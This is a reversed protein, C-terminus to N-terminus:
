AAVAGDLLPALERAATRLAAVDHEARAMLVAGELTSIMLTALATARRSPFARISWGASFTSTPL